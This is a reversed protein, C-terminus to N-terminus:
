VNERLNTGYNSFIPREAYVVLARAKFLNMKRHFWNTGDVMYETRYQVMYETRYQVM